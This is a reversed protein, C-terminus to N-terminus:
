MGGPGAPPQPPQPPGGAGAGGQQGQTLAMMKQVLAMVWANDQLLMGGIM